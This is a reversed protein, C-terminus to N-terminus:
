KKGIKYKNEFYSTHSKSSFMPNHSSVVPKPKELETIKAKLKENEARLEKNEKKLKENEQEISTLKEWTEKDEQTIPDNAPNKNSPYLLNVDKNFDVQPIENKPPSEQIQEGTTTVAIKEPENKLKELEELEEQRAKERLAEKDITDYKNYENGLVSDIYNASVIGKLDKIIKDKIQPKTFEKSELLIDRLERIKEKKTKDLGIMQGELVKINDLTTNYKLTNM